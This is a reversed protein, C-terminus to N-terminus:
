EDRLAKVPDIRSARWAPLVAALMSILTAMAPGALVVWMPLAFVQAKVPLTVQTSLKELAFSNGPIMALWALALGLGGGILGLMGAEILFITRVQRDRAGLAKWLGIERTRELVSTLMTNVIGLAAVMLAVATLFSLAMSIADLTSGIRELASSVSVATHGQERMAEEISGANDKDDALLLVNMYGRIRNANSSRYLRDALAQPVFCDVQYANGDELINFNDGRELERGVGVIKVELPFQIGSDALPDRLDEPVQGTAMFMQAMGFLMQLQHQENEDLREGLRKVDEPGIKAALRSFQQLTERMTGPMAQQDANLPEIVLTKGVLGNLQDLSRYGWQWALYEHIFVEEADPSSFYEGAIVRDRYKGKRTDIGYALRPLAEHDDEKVRVSFREVILPRALSVHDTERLDKLMQDNFGQRAAVRNGARRDRARAARGLRKRRAEDPEDAFPDDEADATGQHRYGTGPQVSIQRLNDEDDVASSLIQEMGSGLAIILTMAFVGIVIGLMTLATRVKKRFLGEWAMLLMGGPTARPNTRTSM